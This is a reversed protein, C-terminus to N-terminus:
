GKRRQRSKVMERAYINAPCQHLCRGCFNGCIIGWLSIMKQDDPHRQKLAERFQEESGPGPPIEVGGISASGKVMGWVGYFCRYIDNYTYKFHREGIDVERTKDLHLAQAPCVKVCLYDCREPQCLAPGEYMPSPVLPANTIVSNFRVRPGFNPTLVLGNFGLEGLGAAVAAHRHSFDAREDGERLGLWRYSSIPWTPPFMLSKYGQYELRKAVVNAIRGLELNVLGYGYFLYPSITKGPQSYEGWVDLIGDALHSGFSIVNKADPMYDVPRNGKPANKLREVPAVGVIDAGLELITAKIEKTLRQNQRVTGQVDKQQMKDNRGETEIFKRL